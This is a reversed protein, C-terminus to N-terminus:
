LHLVLVALKLVYLVFWHPPAAGPRHPSEVARLAGNEANGWAHLGLDAFSRQQTESFWHNPQQMHPRALRLPLHM